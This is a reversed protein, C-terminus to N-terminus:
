EDGSDVGDDWVWLGEGECPGYAWCCVLFYAMNILSLGALVCYYYDYRGENIDSSVWSERGGSRTIRDVSTMVFSALLSGGSMGLGTLTLAISSMSRPFESFLFENLGVANMAEALGTLFYQPLIWMASMQVTDASGNAIALRRRYNEIIATWLMALFSFFIGTGMKQKTTLRVPQGTIKQTFPLIVRDYLGIWLTASIVTFIGFSGAPIEFSSTIHRNMSIAQLVPFSNQSINISILMGTSWIPIVKILAKLEEVQNVTCITWSHSTKEEEDITSDKQCEKIM